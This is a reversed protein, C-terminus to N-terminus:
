KGCHRWEKECVNKNKRRGRRSSEGVCLQLKNNTKEDGTLLRETNNAAHINFANLFYALAQDCALSALRKLQDRLDFTVKVPSM